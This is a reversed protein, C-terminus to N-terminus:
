LTRSVSCCWPGRDQWWVSGRRTLFLELDPSPWLDLVSLIFTVATWAPDPFLFGDLSLNQHRRSFMVLLDPDSASSGFRSRPGSIIWLKISGGQWAMLVALWDLVLVPPPQPDSKREAWEGEEEESERQWQNVSEGIWQSTEKRRNKKM